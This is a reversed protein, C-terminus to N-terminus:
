FIIQLQITILLYIFIRSKLNELLCRYFSIVGSYGLIFIKPEKINLTIYLNLNLIWNFCESSPQFRFSNIEFQLTM